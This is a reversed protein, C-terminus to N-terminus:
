YSQSSEEPFRSATKSVINDESGDNWMWHGEFLFHFYIRVKTKQRVKSQTIKEYNTNLGPYPPNKQVLM